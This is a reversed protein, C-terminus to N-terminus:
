VYMLRRRFTKHVNLKRGTDVPNDFAVCIATPQYLQCSSAKVDSNGETGSRIFNKTCGNKRTCIKNNPYFWSSM